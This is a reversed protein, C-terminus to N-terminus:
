GVQRGLYRTDWSPPKLGPLVPWHSLLIPSRRCQLSCRLTCPRPLFCVKARHGPIPGELQVPGWEEKWILSVAGPM